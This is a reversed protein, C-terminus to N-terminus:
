SRLVARGTRREHTGAGDEMTAAIRVKLSDRGRLLQKGKDTLSVHSARSGKGVLVKEGDVRTTLRVNLAHCGAAYGYCSVMLDVAGDKVEPPRRLRLPCRVLSEEVLKSDISQVHMRVGKCSYAYWAVRGGDFDFKGDFGGSDAGRALLRVNGALDTIGIDARPVDGAHERGRAFAVRGADLEVYHNRGGVPIPHLTPVQPSAWAVRPTGVYSVVLTGKGDIDLDLVTPRAESPPITYSVSSTKVDYVVVSDQRQGREGDVWAAYRGALRLGRQTAPLEFSSGSGLATVTAGPKSCSAQMLRDGNMDLASPLPTAYFNCRRSRLTLQGSAPGAVLDHFVFGRGGSRDFANFDAALWRPSGALRAGFVYADTAQRTAVTARDAGSTRARRVKVGGGGFAEPWAIWPGAIVPGNVPEPASFRSARAETAPVSAALGVFALIAVCRTL